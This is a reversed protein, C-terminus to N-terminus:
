TDSDLMLNFFFDIAGNLSSIDGECSDALRFSIRSHRYSKEQNPQAFKYEVVM